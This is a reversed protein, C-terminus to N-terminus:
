SWRSIGFPVNPASHSPTPFISLKLWYTAMDWFRHSATSWHDSPGDHVNKGDVPRCAVNQSSDASM